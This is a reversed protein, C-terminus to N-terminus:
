GYFGYSPPQENESKSPSKPKKLTLSLVWVDTQWRGELRMRKLCEVAWVRSMPGYERLVQVCAEFCADAMRADGCVYYHTEPNQLLTLLNPGMEALVHQVYKKEGNQNESSPRSLALHFEIMRGDGPASYAEITNRYIWDRETRCGFFLHIPGLPINQDRDLRRDELFGMMPALGTGAGVLILPSSPKSPLRFTSKSITVKARDIGPVLSALYHSCVGEMVVGASTTTTLVGVTIAM